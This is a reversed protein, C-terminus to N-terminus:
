EELIVHNLYFQSDEKQTHDEAQMHTKDTNQTTNM